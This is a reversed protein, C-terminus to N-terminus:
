LFDDRVHFCSEFIRVDSTQKFISEGIRKTRGENKKEREMLALGPEVSVVTFYKLATRGGGQNDAGRALMIEVVSRSGRM